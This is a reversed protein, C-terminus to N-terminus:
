RQGPPGGTRPQVSLVDQRDQLFRLYGLYMELQGKEGSTLLTDLNEIRDELHQDRLAAVTESLPLSLQGSAALVLAEWPVEYADALGRM